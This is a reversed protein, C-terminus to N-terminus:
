QALAEQEKEWALGDLAEQIAVFCREQSAYDCDFRGVAKFIGYLNKASSHKLLETVDEASITWDGSYTCDEQFAMRLADVDVVPRPAPKPTPQAVPAAQAKTKYKMNKGLTHSKELVREAICRVTSVVQERSITRNQKVVESANSLATLLINNPFSEALELMEDVTIYISAPNRHYQSIRGHVEACLRQALEKSVL